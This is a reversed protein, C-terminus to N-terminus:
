QERARTEGGRQPLLVEAGAHRLGDGPHQGPEGALHSRRCVCRAGPEPVPPERAQAIVRASAQMRFPRALFDNMGAALCEARDEAFANAAIAVVHPQLSWPLARMRRAATLGDIRPM